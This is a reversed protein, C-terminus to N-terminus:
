PIGRVATIWCVAHRSGSRSAAQIMTALHSVAEEALNDCARNWGRDDMLVIGYDGDLVDIRLRREMQQDDRSTVDGRQVVERRTIVLQDSRHRPSRRRQRLLVPVALASVPRDEVGIAFSALRDEVNM